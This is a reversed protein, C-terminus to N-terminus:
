DCYEKLAMPDQGANKARMTEIVSLPLVTFLIFFLFALLIAVTFQARGGAKQVIMVQGQVGPLTGVVSILCILLAFPLNLSNNLLVNITAALTTFLTCYSGTASAVAPPVDM